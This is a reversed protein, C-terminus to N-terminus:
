IKCSKMQNTTKILLYFSGLLLFISIYSLEMGRLPLYVLSGSLGLLALIPLGCAACGSSVLGFISSGGVVLKLNGASRLYSLRQFLLSLNAGTLIATIFLTLLGVGSMATWMGQLLAFLLKTKYELPFSGFLTNFILKGNMLYITILIYLSSIVLTPIIFKPSILDEQM